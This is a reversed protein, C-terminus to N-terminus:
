LARGESRISRLLGSGEFERDLALALPQIFPGEDELLVDHAARSLLRQEVWGVEGELFVAVDWDSDAEADGRARSGFLVMRAIRGPLATEARRKFARLAPHRTPDDM